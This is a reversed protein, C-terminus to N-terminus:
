QHSRHREPLYRRSERRPVSRPRTLAVDRAATCPIVMTPSAQRAGIATAFASASREARNLECYSSARRWVLVCYRHQGIQLADAEPTGAPGSRPEALQM